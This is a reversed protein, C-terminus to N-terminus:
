WATETSPRISPAMKRTALSPSTASLLPPGMSTSGAVVIKGDPQVVLGHVTDFRGFDTTVRGDGGGFTPDLAGDPTYRAVAFDDLQPGVPDNEGAVVFKGDAQFAIARGEDAGGGFDTTLKGGSGSVRISTM